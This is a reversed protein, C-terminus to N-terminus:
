LNAYVSRKTFLLCPIAAARHLPWAFPQRPDRGPDIGALLDVLALDVADEVARRPVVDAELGLDRLRAVEAARVDPRRRDHERAVLVARDVGELVAARMAAGLEAAFGEAMRRRRREGTRVVAPGVVQATLEGADREAAAQAAFPSHRLLEIKGGVRERRELHRRVVAGDEGREAARHARELVVEAGLVQFDEM